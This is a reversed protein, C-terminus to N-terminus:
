LKVEISYCCCLVNDELATSYFNHSLLHSRRMGKSDGVFMSETKDDNINAHVHAPGYLRPSSRGEAIPLRSM